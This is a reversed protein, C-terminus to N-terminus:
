LWRDVAVLVVLAAAVVVAVGINLEGVVVLDLQM